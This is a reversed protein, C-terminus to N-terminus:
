VAVPAKIAPHADYNQLIVDEFKLGKLFDSNAIAESLVVDPPLKRTRSLQEKVQDVHNLYIHCDGMTHILEVPSFLQYETSAYACILKLLVSYSAINYPVGLFMDASRQYLSLSVAYYLTERDKTKEYYPESSCDETVDVTNGGGIGSPRVILQFFSHCPPLAMKGIDTPNWASVIHRRSLPDKRLGIILDRIQDVGSGGFNRWQQGYIPGLDGNADAWENWISINNDTLFKTNTDGNLFWILEGLISHFSMRKTTLLPIRHQLGRYRCTMAVKSLTGVGTRDPVVTGTSLVERLADLYVSESTEGIVVSASSYGEAYGIEPYDTM